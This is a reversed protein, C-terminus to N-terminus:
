GRGEVISILAENRIKELDWEKEISVVHEVNKLVTGVWSINFQTLQSFSLYSSFHGLNANFWDTDTQNIVRCASQNIQQNPQNLHKVLVAGLEQKRNDPINVSVNSLAEVIVQYNTCSINSVADILMEATFSPLISILKVKFWDTWNSTQFQAFETSIIKITRNMMVDRVAPKIDKVQDALGTLFEDVKTFANNEELRNFVLDIQSTSNLVGSILTLEAAQSPTLLDLLQVLDLFQLLDLYRSINANLTPLDNLTAYMSFNGFNKILWNSKDSINSFCIADSLDPRSLFPKIFHAIVSIKQTMEMSPEETSFAKVVVQYTQCSFNKSSLSSLFDTSASALFPRLRIQFWTTIFTVNELEADSFKNVKIVSIGDLISPSPLKILPTENSYKDLAEELSASYKQVFLEWIKKSYNGGSPLKCALLTVLDNSSLNAFLACAFEPISFNCLVTSVNGPWLQAMVLDLQSYCQWHNFQVTCQSSSVLMRDLSCFPHTSQQQLRKRENQKVVKVLENKVLGSPFLLSFSFM